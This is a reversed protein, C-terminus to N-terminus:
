ARENSKSAANTEESLQINTSHVHLKDGSKDDNGLNTKKSHSGAGRRSGDPNHRSSDGPSKADARQIIPPSNVPLQPSPSAKKSAASLQWDQVPNGVSVMSTSSIQSPGVNSSPRNDGALAVAYSTENKPKM